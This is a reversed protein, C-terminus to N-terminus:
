CWCTFIRSFARAFISNMTGYCIPHIASPLCKLIFLYDRLLEHYYFQWNEIGGFYEWLFMVQYPTYCVVFILIIVFIMRLLQNEAKEVTLNRKRQRNKIKRELYLTQAEPKINQRGDAMRPSVASPSANANDAQVQEAENATSSVFSSMDIHHNETKRVFLKLKIALAIYAALIVCYPVAFTFILRVITYKNYSPTDSNKDGPFYSRCEFDGTSYQVLRRTVFLPLTVALAMLWVGAIILAKALGSPRTKNFTARYRYVAIIALSNTIVCMSLVLLPNTLICAVKGLTWSGKEEYFVIIPICLSNILEAVAVNAVLDYPFPKRYSTKWVTKCVMFNGVVSSFIVTSILTLRFTKLGNSEQFFKTTNGSAETSLNFGYQTLNMATVQGPSHVDSSM